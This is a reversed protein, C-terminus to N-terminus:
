RGRRYCVLCVSHSSPRDSIDKNCEECRRGRSRMESAGPKLTDFPLQYGRSEYFGDDDWDDEEYDDSDDYWIEDDFEVVRRAANAMDETYKTRVVVTGKGLFSHQGNADRMRTLNECYNCSKCIPAIWVGAKRSTHGKIWVHGGHEAKRECDKFACKGRKKESRDEWHKIWSSYQLRDTSSGDINWAHLDQQLRCVDRNGKVIKLNTAKEM